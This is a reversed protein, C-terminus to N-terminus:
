RGNARERRLVDLVERDSADPNVLGRDVLYQRQKAPVKRGPIENREGAANRLLGGQVNAGRERYENIDTVTSKKPRLGRARARDSGIIGAGMLGAGAALAALGGIRYPKSRSVMKKGSWYQDRGAEVEVKFNKLQRGAKSRGDVKGTASGRQAEDMIKKAGALGAAHREAGIDQAAIGM